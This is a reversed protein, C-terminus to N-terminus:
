NPFVRTGASIMAAIRTADLAADEASNPKYAPKSHASGAPNDHHCAAAFLLLVTALCRSAAVGIPARQLETMTDSHIANGGSRM